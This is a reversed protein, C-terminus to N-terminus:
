LYRVDSGWCGLFIGHEGVGIDKAGHLYVLLETSEISWISGSPYQSQIFFPPVMMM